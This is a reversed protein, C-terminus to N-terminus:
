RNDEAAALWAGVALTSRGTLDSRTEINASESPASVPATDQPASLRALAERWIGYVECLEETGYRPATMGCKVGVEANGGPRLGGARM